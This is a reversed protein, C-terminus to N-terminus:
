VSHIRQQKDPGPTSSAVDRINEQWDESLNLNANGGAVAVKPRTSYASVPDPLDDSWQENNLSDGVPARQRAVGDGGPTVIDDREIRPRDIEM